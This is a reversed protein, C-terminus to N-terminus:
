SGDETSAANVDNVSNRFSEGDSGLDGLARWDVEGLRIGHVLDDFGVAAHYVTGNVTNPILCDALVAVLFLGVDDQLVQDTDGACTAPQPYRAQVHWLIWSGRVFRACLSLNQDRKPFQEFLYTGRIGLGDWERMNSRHFDGKCTHLRCMVRLDFIVAVVWWGGGDGGLRGVGWGGDEM